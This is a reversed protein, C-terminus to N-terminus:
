WLLFIMAEILFGNLKYNELCFLSFNSFMGTGFLLDLILPKGGIPLWWGIRVWKTYDDLLLKKGKQTYTLAPVKTTNISSSQYKLRIKKVHREDKPDM